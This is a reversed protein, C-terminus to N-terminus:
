QKEILLLYNSPITPISGSKNLYFYALDFVNSALWLQNPNSTTIVTYIKMVNGDTDKEIIIISNDTKEKQLEFYTTRSVSCYYDNTVKLGSTITMRKVYDWQQEASCDIPATISVTTYNNPYANYGTKTEMGSWTGTLTQTFKSIAQDVPAPDNKSCAILFVVLSFISLVNKM